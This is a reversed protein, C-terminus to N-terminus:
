EKEINNLKNIERRIWVSDFYYPTSHTYPSDIMGAYESERSMLIDNIIDKMMNLIRKSQESGDYTFKSDRELYTYKREEMNNKIPQL